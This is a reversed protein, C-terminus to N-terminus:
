CYLTANNDRKNDERSKEVSQILNALLLELQKSQSEAIVESVMPTQQEIVTSVNDVSNRSIGSDM